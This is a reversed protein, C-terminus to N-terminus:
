ILDFDAQTYYWGRYLPLTSFSRRFLGAVTIYSTERARYGADQFAMFDLCTDPLMMLVRDCAQARAFDLLWGRLAHGAAPQSPDVLWDAVIAGARLDFSGANVVAYGVLRGHVDRALAMRYIQRPRTAFRWDLYARDRVAIADHPLRAREFLTDVEDSFRQVEEIRVSGAPSHASVRGEDSREVELELVLQERVTHYALMKQGVRYARRVPLGYMVRDKPQLGGYHHGYTQSCTVFLGPKKLGRGARPDAFSDVIQNWHVREGNQVMRIPLGAYHVVVEDAATVGVFMRLGAPNQLTRWHWEDMTRPVFTPDIAAFVRNFAPLISDEDGPRYERVRYDGLDIEM